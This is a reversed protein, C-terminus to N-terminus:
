SPRWLCVVLGLETTRWVNEGAGAQGGAKTARNTRVNDRSEPVLLLYVRSSYVQSEM